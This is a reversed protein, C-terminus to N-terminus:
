TQSQLIHQVMSPSTKLKKAIVHVPHKPHLKAIKVALKARDLRPKSVVGGVTLIQV